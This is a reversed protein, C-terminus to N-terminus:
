RSSTSMSTEQVGTQRLVERRDYYVSESAIKGDAFTFVAVHQIHVYRGPSEVGDFPGALVGNVDIEACGHTDDAMLTRVDIHLETFAGFLAEHIRRIADKGTHVLRVDTKGDIDDAFLGPVIYRPEDVMEALVAETDGEEELRFHRRIMEANQENM